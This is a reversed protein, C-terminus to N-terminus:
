DMEHCILTSTKKIGRINRIKERVLQGLAEISEGEVEAIVDFEGFTVWARLVGPIESINDRVEREKGPLTTFLIIARTLIQIGGNNAKKEGIVGLIIGNLFSAGGIEKPSFVKKRFSRAPKIKTPTM